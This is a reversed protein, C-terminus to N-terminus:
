SSEKTTFTKVLGQKLNAVAEERTSGYGVLELKGNTMPEWVEIEVHCEHSQYKEKGDDVHKVNLLPFLQEVVEEIPNSLM